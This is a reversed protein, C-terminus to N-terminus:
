GETHIKVLQLTEFLTLRADARLSTPTPPPHHDVLYACAQVPSPAAPRLFEWIQTSM